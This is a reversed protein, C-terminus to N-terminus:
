THAVYHQVRHKFMQIFQQALESLSAETRWLLYIQVQWADPHEAVVHLAGKQLLARIQNEPFLCAGQGQSCLLLNLPEVQSLLRAKVPFHQPDLYSPRLIYHFHEWAHKTPRQHVIQMPIVPGPYYQILPDKPKAIAIGLEIQDTILASEIQALANIGSILHAEPYYAHSKGLANLCHGVWEPCVNLHGGIKLRPLPAQFAQHDKHLARVKELILRSRLYLDQGKGVLKVKNQHLEIVNSDLYNELAQIYNRVSQESLELELAAQKLSGAQVLVVLCHLWQIKLDLLSFDKSESMPGYLSASKLYEILGIGFFHSSIAQPINKQPGDFFSHAAFLAFLSIIFTYSIILL